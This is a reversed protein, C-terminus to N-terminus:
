VISKENRRVEHKLPSNSTYKLILGSCHSNDKPQFVRIQVLRWHCFQFNKELKLFAPFLGFHVSLFTIIVTVTNVNIVVIFFFM